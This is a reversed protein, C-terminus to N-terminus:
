FFILNSQLPGLALIEELSSIDAKSFRHVPKFLYISTSSLYTLLFILSLPLQTYLIFVTYNCLFMTNITVSAACKFVAENNFASELLVFCFAWYVFFCIIVQFSVHFINYRSFSLNKQVSISHITINQPKLFFFLALFYM